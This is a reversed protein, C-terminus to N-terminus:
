KAERIYSGKAPWGSSTTRAASRAPSTSAGGPATSPTSAIPRTTRPSPATSRARIKGSGPPSSRSSSGRATSSRRSRPSGKRAHEALRPRGPRHRRRPVPRRRLRAGQLGQAQPRVGDGQPGAPRVPRRRHQHELPRVLVPVRHADKSCTRRRADQPCAHPTEKRQSFEPDLPGFPGQDM